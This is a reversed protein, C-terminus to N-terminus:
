LGTHGFGGPGRRTDDLSEAEVIEARAVPAIVLQAIREGRKIAQPEASWNIVILQIEGRYDSDITGPANVLGLGRKIAIGSRARVQGEFGEPIAVRVGTRVLAREGPQLVMVDDVAAYLDVGSAGDSAYGPLPLDLCDGARVIFVAVRQV